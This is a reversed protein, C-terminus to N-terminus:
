ILRCGNDDNREYSTVYIDYKRKKVYDGICIKSLDKLSKDSNVDEERIQVFKSMLSLLDRLDKNKTIDYIRPEFNSFKILVTGDNKLIFDDLIYRASSTELAIAHESNTAIYINGSEKDFSKYYFLNGMSYVGGNESTNIRLKAKINAEFMSSKEFFKDLMDIEEFIDSVRQEYDDDLFSVFSSNKKDVAKIVFEIGGERVYIDCVDKLEGGYLDEDKKFISLFDFTKFIYHVVSNTTGINFFEGNKVKFNKLKELLAERKRGIEKFKDLAIEVEEVKKNDSLKKKLSNLHKVAKEFHVSKGFLNVIDYRCNIVIKDKNVNERINKMESYDDTSGIKYTNFNMASVPFYTVPTSFIIVSSTGAVISSRNIRM